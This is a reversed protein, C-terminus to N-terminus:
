GLAPPLFPIGLNLGFVFILWCLVIMVASLTIAGKLTQSRDAFSSIMVLAGVSLALGFQQLFVGFVTMASLILGLQRWAWNELPDPGSRAGTILLGIGFIGILGLVLMPMYGPGMRSASGIEYEQNFYLGFISLVILLLGLAIDKASYKPESPESIMDNLEM